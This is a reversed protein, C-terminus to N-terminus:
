KSGINHWSEVLDPGLEYGILRERFLMPGFHGRAEYGNHARCRLQLNEVTTPGGAAFPIVHHFDLFGRESCRGDVGVFACQGGDRAWVNRRVAAPVHRGGDSSTLRDRPREVQALKKRELDHLLLTVARDFIVAPDGDPVVHRLLDQVRRLKDHTERSITIQVKYRQPALPRIVAPAVRQSTTSGSPAVADVTFSPTASNQGDTTAAGRTQLTAPQPLRQVTSPVDPKPRLAAIQDEVERKSKHRAAELLQRHNDSRLHSTLLSVTTLTISGDALWELVLPFRRVARAAEIRGYAAHESLRLCKTCYVFLSSYGQRLYLQRADMEALLAILHASAERECTAAAKVANLLQDDSLDHVSDKNM